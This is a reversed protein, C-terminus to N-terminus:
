ATSARPPSQGWPRPSARAERCGRRMQRAAEAVANRTLLAQQALDRLARWERLQRAVASANSPDLPEGRKAWADWRAEVAATAALLEARSSECPQELKGAAINLGVVAGDRQREGRLRGAAARASAAIRGSKWARARLREALRLRRRRATPSCRQECAYGCGRRSLVGRAVFLRPTSLATLSAAAPPLLRGSEGHRATVEGRADAPAGEM